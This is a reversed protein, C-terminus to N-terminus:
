EGGQPPPRLSMWHTPHAAKNLVSHYCWGRDYHGTSPGYPAVFLLVRTGDRPATALPQWENQAELEIVIQALDRGNQELPLLRNVEAELKEIHAAAEEIAQRSALVMIGDEDAQEYARLHKVHDTM